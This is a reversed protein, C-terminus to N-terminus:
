RVLAHVRPMVEDRWIEVQEILDDGSFMLLLRDVGAGALQEVRRACQEATGVLGYRETLFPMLGLEEVLGANHSPGSTAHEAPRYEANLRALRLVLEPPVAGSGAPFRLAHHAVAAMGSRARRMAEEATAALSVRASFWVEVAAPARGASRAGAAILDRARSIDAEGLGYSVLAGDAVRGAMALGKPGEAALYIPVARRAWGVRFERDGAGVSGGDLVARIAQAGSEVAAMRAPRDGAGYVASDGTGLGLIARGSSLEDLTMIAGATVALHRTVVNTVTPGLRISRTAQAAVALSIYVDQWLSQNDGLGIMEFGASEAARALDAARRSEGLPGALM